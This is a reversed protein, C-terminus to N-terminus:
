LSGAAAAPRQQVTDHQTSAADFEVTQKEQGPTGLWDKDAEVQFALWMRGQMWSGCGFHCGAM